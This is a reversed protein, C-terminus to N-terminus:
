VITVDPTWTLRRFPRVRRRGPGYLEAGHGRQNLIETVGDPVQQPRRPEGQDRDQRERQADAGVGRDEGDDVAHDESRQAVGLRLPQHEDGAAKRGQSEILEPNGRGLVELERLPVARERADPRERGPLQVQRRAVPWPTHPRAVHVGRQQLRQTHWRRAAPMEGRLFRSGATGVDGHQRVLGPLGHKGSAVHDALGHAEVASRPLDDADHRRAEVDHVVLDLHPQGQAQVGGVAAVAAVM